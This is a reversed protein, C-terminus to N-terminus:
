CCPSAGPERLLEEFARVNEEELLMRERAKAPPLRPVREAGV